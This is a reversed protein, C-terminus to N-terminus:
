ESARPRVVITKEDESMVTIPATLNADEGFLFNLLFQDAKRYLLRASVHLSTVQTGPAAFAADTDLPETTLDM